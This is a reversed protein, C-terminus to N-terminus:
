SDQLWGQLLAFRVIDIRNHMGLKNMANAKHTEVTKVSLKLQAAIEKNSYGWAVLRLIETERPSIGRPVEAASGSPMRRGFEDVLAGAVSPDLYTGGAAVARIAHLLEAVRSQKLVYGSAGAELLQQVYGQEAHRTLTLIKLQPFREHLAETAKLGNLRPMSVDMVVVDPELDLSQTLAAVGDPAEGVVEMDPQSNLIAKLGERVAEHDDALLIRLKTM